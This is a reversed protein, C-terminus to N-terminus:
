VQPKSSVPVVVDQPHDDDFIQALHGLALRAAEQEAAQRSRGEGELRLEASGGAVRVAVRFTPQHAPGRREQLRYVPLTGYRAQTLMQLASKPDLPPPELTGSDQAVLRQALGRVAELGGDEVMAGLVAELREALARETAVSTTMTDARRASATPREALARETPVSTTMTDARRGSAKPKETLVRETPVSTTMTDARRARAKPKEALARPSAKALNPDPSPPLGLQRALRALGRASCWASRFRTLDGATARPKIRFAAMAVAFNWAADGLFELRQRVVAAQPRLPSPVTGLALHLIGPDRFQYALAEQLSTLGEELSTTSHQSNEKSRM